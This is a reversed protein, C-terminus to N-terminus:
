EGEDQKTLRENAIHLCALLMPYDSEDRDLFAAVPDCRFLLGYDV